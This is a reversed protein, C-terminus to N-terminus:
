SPTAPLLSSGNDYGVLTRLCRLCLRGPWLRQRGTAAAPLSAPSCVSWRVPQCCTHSGVRSSEVRSSEIRSARRTRRGGLHGHHFVPANCAHCKPAAGHFQRPGVPRSASLQCACIGHCAHCGERRGGVRCNRPRDRQSAAYWLKAELENVEEADKARLRGAQRGDRENEKDM